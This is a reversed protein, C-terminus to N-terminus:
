RVLAPRNFRGAGPIVAAADVGFWSELLSCYVGRFDCTTRLNGGEDLTSLGPFEGVMRGTARTGIVMSLGAAGHDTGGSGNEEARRGFESWVHTLVRDALRRAEIDRQFALLSDSLLQLNANFKGSQDSHTDWDGIANISVCRIPLGAGLLAALAALQRPLSEDESEPYPVPSTFSPKDDKSAFPALQGRLMATQGAAARAVRMADDPAPGRGFEAFTSMMAADVPSWVNRTWFSFDDPRDVAATPVSRTVLAPSLSQDLTLGQLPNDPRGIRDLLRGLWGTTGGTSMEGVDWFHRTSFHSGNPDDNGIAPMVTVKGEGHLTALGKARPNWALRPDEGFPLGAAASVALTPRLSAYKPDGVPALASLSDMGGGLYVSVLVADDPGAAGALSELMRPGLASLGYVSAALGSSKKLFTRRSLSM